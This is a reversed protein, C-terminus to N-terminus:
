GWSINRTSMKTLPQISRLSMTLGSPNHWLVIGTVGGPISGAVKRSTTCHRLWSRWINLHWFSSPHSLCPMYHALLLYFGSSFVFQDKCPRIFTPMKYVAPWKELIQAIILKVIIIIACSFGVDGEWICQSIFAPKNCEVVVHWGLVYTFVNHKQEKCFLLSM